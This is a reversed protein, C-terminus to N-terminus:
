SNQVCTACDFFFAWKTGPCGYSYPRWSEDEVSLGQRSKFASLWNNPPSYKKWLRTTLRRKHLHHAFQPSLRFNHISQPHACTVPVLAGVRSTM